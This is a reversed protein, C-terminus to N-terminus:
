ALRVAKMQEEIEQQLREGEAWLDRLTGMRTEMEERFQEPTIDEYEIKVEFYQGASFSYRKAKIDDYDALVSFDDQEEVRNFVDIIRAIEGDALVTRQNKGVKEKSGLKSADMLLAKDYQKSRDLFIISVNTGTNAFINSPMSVVGRLMGSDVMNERITTEIRSKATLFGTPVVIAARGGPKMSDVIHQLFMLYIAMKDPNKAPIKPVGAWFRKGYKESALLDRSSSFDAKFPPNSVIYDFTKLATGDKTLHRPSVLTDDHVVNALSAVQGNLILNLRMFENAKQSRDQTYVTCNGEGLQHALALVLTGSGAAPDYVTVDSDGEPALIRAMISAIAHPTFYEGYSGSDKNYDKILYEFVQSFFDYGQSFADAFSFDALVNILASCFGDRKYEEVIFRSVGQFLTISEAGAKVAYVDINDAAIGLLAEDFTKAFGEENQRNFLAAVTWEPRIIATTGLEYPLMARADADLSRYREGIASVGKCGEFEPLKGLEHLMRDNLYKYLFSETIIKYESSDNALGFDACVTKLKDIMALTSNLIATNM